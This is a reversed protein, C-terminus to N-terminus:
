VSRSTEGEGERERERGHNSESGVEDQDRGLVEVSHPLPFDVKSTLKKTGERTKHETENGNKAEPCLFKNLVKFDIMIQSLFLWLKNQRTIKKREKKTLGM